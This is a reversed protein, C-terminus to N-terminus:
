YGRKIRKLIEKFVQRIENDTEKEIAAEIATQAQGKDISYLVWAAETRIAPKAHALAEILKPVAPEGIKVLATRAPHRHISVIIGTQGTHDLTNVLVEVAEIAKLEGLLNVSKMWATALPYEHKASLDEVVDMLRDIVLARSEESRAAIELLKEPVQRQDEVSPGTIMTESEVRRLRQLLRTIEDNPDPANLLNKMSRESFSSADAGRARLRAFAERQGAAAATELAGWGRDNKGNIEAGHKLLLILKETEGERAADMLATNGGAGRWNVEAGQDLLRKVLRGEASMLPSTSYRDAQNVNVGHSLLLSIIEEHKLRMAILLAPDGDSIWRNGIGFPKEGKYQLDPSMGARLFWEVKETDGAIVRQIFAEPTFAVNSESLKRRAEQRNPAFTPTQYLSLLLILALARM